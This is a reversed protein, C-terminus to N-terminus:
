PLERPYGAEELHGQIVLRHRRRYEAETVFGSRRAADLEDIARLQANSLEEPSPLELAINELEEESMEMLITRRRTQGFRARLSVPKAYYSSRWEVAVGRAGHQLQAEGPVLHFTARGSPVELPITYSRGEHAKNGEHPVVEEIAFFEVVLLDSQLSARFSTVREETFISLRRDRSHAAAVIEADPGALEFARSLGEALEYVHETRITPQAAGKGPTHSFSALIHALRVDAIIAPQDYNRRVLEGKVETQRIEVHVLDNKVVEQRIVKPGCAALFIPVALVAAPVRM